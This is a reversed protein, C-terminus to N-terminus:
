KSASPAPSTGAGPSRGSLSAAYDDTAADREYVLPINRSAAYSVGWELAAAHTMPVSQALTTVNWGERGNIRKSSVHDITTVTEGSDDLATEVLVFVPDVYSEGPELAPLIRVEAAKM